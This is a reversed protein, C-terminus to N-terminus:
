LLVELRCPRYSAPFGRTASAPGHGEGGLPANHRADDARLSPVQSITQIQRPFLLHLAALDGASEPRIIQRAGSPDITPRLRLRM